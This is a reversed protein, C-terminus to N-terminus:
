PQAEVQLKSISGWSMLEIVEEASLTDHNEPEPIPNPKKADEFSGWSLMDFIQDKSFATKDLKDLDLNGGILSNIYSISYTKNDVPGDTEPNYVTEILNMVGGTLQVRGWKGGETYFYWYSTEKDDNTNTWTIAFIEDPSLPIPDGNAEKYHDLIYDVGAQLSDTVTDTEQIKYERVINLADGVPGKLTGEKVEWIMSKNLIYVKGTNSNMYLDGPRAGTVTADFKGTDVELGAYIKSGTPIEFDFTITDKDTVSVSASGDEDPGVFTAQVAPKPAKPLKFKLVWQTKENDLFDRTVEPVAPELTDADYPSMGDAQVDPLPSQICAIYDFVCTNGTKSSVRYIFGTAANIYYDGVGYTAFASNTLTYQGATREGLLNGYYFQIARPLDFRLKPSNITGIDTVNPIVMPDVVNTQPDDMVQSQPLHFILSPENKNTDDFTIFPTKNADLVQYSVNDELLKQAVPLKFKIIPENVTGDESIDLKVEPNKDVDLLQEVIASRIVQSQPLWMTLTPRNITGGHPGPVLNGSSDKSGEDFVVRPKQDADLVNVPQNLSLVQSQPLSFFLIPHDVDSGDLIVSPDEDADLITIPQNVSFHPTNGTMSAVLKYYWGNANGKTEDYCKQWLTSNYVKGEADIDIQKYIDYNNDSPLGYSVVVFENESIPSTWGLSLDYRLSDAIGNKSTFIAKIYFSQGNPGGYFPNM